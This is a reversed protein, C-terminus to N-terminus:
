VMAALGRAAWEPSWNDHKKCNCPKCAPRLNALIHAGGKAVPKVHDVTMPVVDGSVGCYVCRNGFMSARQTWQEPSIAVVTVLQLRARRRHNRDRVLARSHEVDAHYQAAVYERVHDRNADNWDRQLARHRDKNKASWAKNKALVADRNVAYNARGMDSRCPKCEPSLGSKDRSNHFFETRYRTVGCVTCRKRGVVSVLIM